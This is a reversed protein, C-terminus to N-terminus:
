ASKAGPKRVVAMSEGAISLGGLADTMAQTKGEDLLHAYRATTTIQQHGLVHQVLKLSGTQALLWSAVTHRLDHFRLGVGSLGAKRKATAFARKIERIPKGVFQPTTCRPCGCAIKPHGFTFVPGRRRDADPELWSLLAVMEPILQVTHRRDGKQIVSITGKEFSVEEWRLQTINAKRLGTMLDAMIVVQAHPVAADILQQAASRELFVERGEPERQWHRAKTWAGVEVRWIERARDMVVHLTTLYRNITAPGAGEIRQTRGGKAERERPQRLQVVLTAITGDDIASLLTDKGLLDLLRACQYRRGPGYSLTHGEELWYRGFAHNLTMEAKRRTTEGLLLRREEEKFRRLAYAGALAPDDTRCSERFRHGDISFTCYWSTTGKPRRILDSGPFRGRPRTGDATSRGSQRPM